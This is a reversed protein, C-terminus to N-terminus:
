RPPELGRDALAAFPTPPPPSAGAGELGREWFEVDHFSGHKFGVRGFRGVPRYGLRRHLARSPDNPLAIGAVATAFGQRELLEILGAGLALGVGAGRHEGDVYVSTEASWDYAPRARFRTAYAYGAVAGSSDCAVIWPHTALLGEVKARFAEVSPPELEFSIASDRVIPAYIALMAAADDPTAM